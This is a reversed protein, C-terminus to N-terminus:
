EGLFALLNKGYIQARTQGDIGLKDYIANDRKIYGTVMEVDYVSAADTGFIMHSPMAGYGVTLLKTLAEERYLTPTGPTLDVFMESKIGHATRGSCSNWKGFVSILEDCWPWSIHALAFRLNEIYFLHEFNCPRNFDGSPGPNYLIGSHFLMPKGAKAIHAYVPLARPDQPYHHTCIVKFGRIGAKVALDVQETADPDTPDIFYFPYLRPHDKTFAMVQAIRRQADGPEPTGNFFSPPYMSFVIGGDVGAETLKAAFIGPEDLQDEIHIHCDLIM